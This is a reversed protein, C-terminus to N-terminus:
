CSYHCEGVTFPHSAHPGYNNSKDKARVFFMHRGDNVLKDPTFTGSSGDGCPRYLTTDDIACEFQGPESSTWTFRPSSTNYANRSTVTVKPPNADLCILFFLNCFICVLFFM